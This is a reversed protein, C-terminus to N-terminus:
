MEIAINGSYSHGVLVDAGLEAALDGALRAFGEVILDDPAPRGGFGPPAAAAFRVSGGPLRPDALVEAYFAATGLGGPRLLATRSADPPGAERLEWGKWERPADAGSSGEM